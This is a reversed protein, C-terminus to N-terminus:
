PAQADPGANGSPLVDIGEQELIFRVAADLSAFRLSGFDDLPGAGPATRVTLIRVSPSFRFASPGASVGPRAECAPGVADDRMWEGSPCCRYTVGNEDTFTFGPEVVPAGYVDVCGIRATRDGVYILWGTAPAAPENLFVSAQHILTWPSSGGLRLGLLEGVEAAFTALDQRARESVVQATAEYATRQHRDAIRNGTKAPEPPRDLRLRALPRAEASVVGVALEGGREQLATVLPDLAEPRVEVGDDLRDIVVAIRVPPAITAREPTPGPLCGAAWLAGALVALLAHIKVAGM